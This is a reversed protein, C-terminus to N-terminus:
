SHYSTLSDDHVKNVKKLAASSCLFSLHWYATCWTRRMGKYAADLLYHHHTTTQVSAGAREPVCPLEEERTSIIVGEGAQRTGRGGHVSRTQGPSLAPFKNPSLALERHHQLVLCIFTLFHNGGSSATQCARM